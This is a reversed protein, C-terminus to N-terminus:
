KSRKNYIITELNNLFKQSGLENLHVGDKSYKDHFLQGDKMIIAM